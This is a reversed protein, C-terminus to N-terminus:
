EPTDAATYRDIVQEPFRRTEAWIALAEAETMLDRLGRTPDLRKDALRLLELGIKARETM